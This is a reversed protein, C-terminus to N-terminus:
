EPVLDVRFTLPVIQFTGLYSIGGYKFRFYDGTADSPFDIRAQQVGNVFLFMQQPGGTSASMPTNFEFTDSANGTFTVAGVTPLSASLATNFVPPGTAAILAAGVGVLKNNVRVARGNVGLVFRRVAAGTAPIAPLLPRLLPDTGVSLLGYTEQLYGKIINQQVPDVTRALEELGARLDFLSADVRETPQFDRELELRAQGLQTLRVYGADTVSVASLQTVSDM